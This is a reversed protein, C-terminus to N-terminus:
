AGTTLGLSPSNTDILFNLYELAQDRSTHIGDLQFDEFESLINKFNPGPKLGVKILDEGTIFLTPHLDQKQFRRLDFENLSEPSEGRMECNQFAIASTTRQVGPIRALRIRGSRTHFKLNEIEGIHTLAGYIAEFDKTSFKLGQLIEKVGISTEMYDAFFMAFVHDSNFPSYRHFRRLTKAFPGNLYDEGFIHGALGSTVFLGLAAVVNEGSELLTKELEQRIRERSVNKIGAANKCISGFTAHEITFGLQSVFRIARLMRLPDEIFRVDPIGIARIIKRSIDDKGRGVFDHVGGEEDEVLSNMTFDRRTVDDAVDTSYSVEDPHRGDSYTGDKRFTAIEFSESKYVVVVVGFKQGVPITTYSKFIGLVQDPTADTTIDYDKSRRGLINDRVCGGVFYAKFGSTQLMKLIDRGYLKQVPSYSM